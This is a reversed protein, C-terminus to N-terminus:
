HKGAVHRTIEEIIEKLQHFLIPKTYFGHAGLEGSRKKDEDRRSTSLIYIPSNKLAENNKIKGLVGFGDLLPMNLDLLIFDPHHDHTDSTLLTLLERGDYVSTVDAETIEGIAQRVLYHDDEDDDAVVIYLKWTKDM